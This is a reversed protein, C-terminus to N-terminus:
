PGVGHNRLLNIGFTYQEEWSKTSLWERVTLGKTFGQVSSYYASIQTHVSSSILRLNVRSHIIPGFRDFMRQEVVHHWDFGSPAPNLRKFNRFLTRSSVYGIRALRAVAVGGEGATVAMDEPVGQPGLSASEAELAALNEDAQDLLDSRRPPTAVCGIIQLGSSTPGLLESAPCPAFGSVDMLDPADNAAYGYLLENQPTGDPLTADPTDFSGIATDLNRAGAIMTEGDFYDDSRPSSFIGLGTSYSTCQSPDYSANYKYGPTAAPYGPFYPASVIRGTPVLASCPLGPIQIGFEGVGTGNRANTAYGFIDRDWMVLQGAGPVPTANPNPIDVSQGSKVVKVTGDQATQFVLGDNDDWHNTFVSSSSGSYSSSVWARGDYGFAYQNGSSNGVVHDGSDYISDKKRGAADYGPTNTLSAGTRPDFASVYDNKYPVSAGDASRLAYQIGQNNGVAGILEGRTTYGFDIHSPPTQPYESYPVGPYNIHLDYGAVQGADNLTINSYTAGPATWSSLEGNANYAAVTTNNGFPDSSSAYRGAATYTTAFDYQTGRFTFKRATVRGSSDFSDKYLAHSAPPAAIIASSQIAVKERWGNGTYYYTWLAPSTLAGSGTFGPQGTGGTPEQKTKTNGAADYTYSTTGFAASTASLLNGNGDYSYRMSAQAISGAAAWPTETAVNEGGDYTYMAGGLAGNVASLVGYSNPSQDYAYETAVFANKAPAVMLAQTQRDLADYAFGQVDTWQFPPLASGNMLLGTSNPVFRQVDFRGGHSAFSVTHVGDSITNVGNTGSTGTLDYLYRTAWPYPYFDRSDPPLVTEVIREASDLYYTTAASSSPSQWKQISTVMHDADYKYTDAVNDAHEHSSAQSLLDGNPYYTRYSSVGDEDTSKIPRGMVDYSVTASNVSGIRTTAAIQGKSTYTVNIGPTVAIGNTNSLIVDGAYQIPLSYDVGNVLGYAYTSAYGVQNIVKSLRGLPENVVGNDYVYRYSGLGGSCLAGAPGAGNKLVYEPDCASLLNDNLDYSYYYTPQYQGDAPQATTEVLSVLNRRTDYGFRRSTGRPDTQTILNHAGDYTRLESLALSPSVTYDVEAVNGGADMSYVRAHGDSDTFTTRGGPAGTDYSFNDSHYRVLGSAASQQPQLLSGGTGDPIAWNVYGIPHEDQLRGDAYYHFFTYGGQSGTCNAGPACSDWWRPDMAYQLQHPSNYAYQQVSIGYTGFQVNNVPTYVQTLQLANTAPDVATWYQYQTGDPLTITSLANVGPGNPNYVTAFQLTIQSGSPMATAVISTLNNITSSDQAAFAYALTITSATNRGIIQYLRGRLAAGIASSTPSYLHYTIGGKRQWYYGNANDSYLYGDAQNVPVLVGSSYTFDNRGGDDAYVSFGNENQAMHVDFTTSWGDGYLNQITGDTTLRDYTSLSNYSRYFALPLGANPISFDDVHVLLNGTSVNALLSGIGFQMRNEYEYWDKVGLRDATLTSVSSQSRMASPALTGFSRRKALPVSITVPLRTMGHGFPMRASRLVEELSDGTRNLVAPVVVGRRLVTRLHLKAVIQSVKREEPQLGATSVLHPPLPRNVIAASAPLPQAVQWVLCLLCLSCLSLLAALVARSSSAM